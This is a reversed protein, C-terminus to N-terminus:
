PHCYLYRPIGLLIHMDLTSITHLCLMDDLYFYRYKYLNNYFNVHDISGDYKINYEILNITEVEYTLM